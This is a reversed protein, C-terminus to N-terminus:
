FLMRTKMYFTRGPQPFGSALEYNDDLLNKFGLSLELNRAVTSTADLNLLTYAGTQVYPLATAPTATKDSWRDDACELNPTLRLPKISQWMAYLFAKNTPVGTPRLNPQLADTIVRHIYTYNGGVRLAASLPTEVSLEVGSFDGNGVNQTQTTADPLVVTQILDRVDSYFVTAAL